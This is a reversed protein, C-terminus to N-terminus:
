IIYTASFSTTVNGGLGSTFAKVTGDIGIAGYLISNGTRIPIQVAESPRFGSPVTMFATYTSIASTFVLNANVSVIHNNKKVSNTSVSSTASGISMTTETVTDIESQLETIDNKMANIESTSVNGATQKWGDTDKIWQSM